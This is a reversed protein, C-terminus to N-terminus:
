IDKRGDEAAATNEETKKKEKDFFIFMVAFLAVGVSLAMDAVNFVAFNKLSIFDRVAGNFFGTGRVARDLANGIAGSAMLSVSLRLLTHKKRMLYFMVCFFIIGFVTVAFFLGNKGALWGFSAGTNEVYLLELFDGIISVRRGGELANKAIAKTIQDLLIVAAFVAAEIIYFRRLTKKINKM